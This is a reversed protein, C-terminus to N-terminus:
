AVSQKRKQKRRATPGVYDHGGKKADDKALQSLGKGEKRPERKPRDKKEAKAKHKAKEEEIREKAAKGLSYLIDEIAPEGEKTEVPLFNGHRGGLDKVIQINYDGRNRTIKVGIKTTPEVLVDVETWRTKKDTM